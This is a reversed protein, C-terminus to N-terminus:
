LSWAACAQTREIFVLGQHGPGVIHPGSFLFATRGVLALDGDKAANPNIRKLRADFATDLGGVSAVARTAEKATSWTPLDALWDKGSRLNLWGIAFLICDHSGWVFPLELRESIYAQLTM